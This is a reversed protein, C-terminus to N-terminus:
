SSILTSNYDVQKKMLAWLVRLLKNMMAGVAQMKTLPNKPRQWYARYRSAFDADVQILRLAAFYIATRLRPRGKRSIPTLSRSRRGSTNSVPQLGALKIWQQIRTYNNPDGIEALITAATVIGLKPVSLLHEIGPISRANIELNTRVQKLQADLIGLTDIHLRVALQLTEVGNCLGVSDSALAHAKKLKKISLRQGRLDASVAKIFAEQTLQRVVRASAHNRLMATATKGTLDKFVTRLEPFLQNVSVRLLTKQRAFDRKLRDHLTVLERLEAYVGRLLQTETYKGTRILDAITFADRNDDKSRDLQDGERHKKVTYSNVLCYSIHHEELETALLKWIFATPEMGVLINHTEYKSKLNNLRHRLYQYGSRDNPFSFRSLRAAHERIVVAVNKDLGLDIGVFLTGPEVLALKKTLTRM